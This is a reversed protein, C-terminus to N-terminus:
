YRVYCILIKITHYTCVIAMCSHCFAKCNKQQTSNILSVRQLVQLVDKKRGGGGHGEVVTELNILEM